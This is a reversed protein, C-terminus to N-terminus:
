AETRLVTTQVGRLAYLRVRFGTKYNLQSSTPYNLDTLPVQNNGLPCCDGGFTDREPIEEVTLAFGFFPHTLPRASAVTLAM